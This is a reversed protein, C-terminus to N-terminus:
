TVRHFEGVLGSRKLDALLLRFFYASQLLKLAKTHLSKM